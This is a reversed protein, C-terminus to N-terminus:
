SNKANKRKEFIKSDVLFRYWFGQLFHFILGEKGDLFGLRIFYRYLFYLLPRSFLPARYYVMNKLFRKREAQGKFLSGKMKIGEGLERTDVLFQAVEKNSYWNHKQTWWELDKPNNDIMDEKFITTEGNDLLYIHEDMNLQECKATGRRFIRLLLQPYVGGHKIWKDLFYVRRKLVIGDVNKPVKNLKQIIEAVLENTLEEDADMRMIWETSIEINSLAWNFQAAHNIFKNEYFDLGLQLSIEKTQDTSYSDVVIIRKAIGKISKICKEITMEENKTLIIITLDLM